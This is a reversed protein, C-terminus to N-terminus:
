QYDIRAAMKTRSNVVATCRGRNVNTDHGNINRPEQHLHLSAGPVAGFNSQSSCALLRSNSGLLTFSGLPTSGGVERAQLMFGKFSGSTATLTVTIEQSDTYSSNDTTISYPAQSNQASTQHSPTM